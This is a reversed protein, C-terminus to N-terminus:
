VCTCKMHGIALSDCCLNSIMQFSPWFSVLVEVRHPINGHIHSGTERSVNAVSYPLGAPYTAEQPIEGKMNSALTM